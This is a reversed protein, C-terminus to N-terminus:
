RVAAYAARAQNLADTAQRVAGKAANVAAARQAVTAKAAENNANAVSYGSEQNCYNGFAMSAWPGTFTNPRALCARSISDARTFYALATAAAVVAQQYQAEAQRYDADRQALTREAAEVAAALQERTPGRPGKAISDAARQAAQRQAEAAAKSAEMGAAVGPAVAGPTLKGSMAQQQVSPPQVQVTLPLVAAGTCAKAGSGRVQVYVTAAKTYAHTYWAQIQASGITSPVPATGDGWTITLECGAQHANTYLSFALKVQAPAGTNSIFAPNPTVSAGSITPTGYNTQAGLRLSMIAAVTVCVMVRRM